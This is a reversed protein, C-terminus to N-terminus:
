EANEAILRYREESARLGTETIRRFTFERKLLCFILVSSMVVFTWGKYTQLISLTSINTVLTALLRDSLLIWFGGFLAYLLVIRFDIHAVASNFNRNMMM